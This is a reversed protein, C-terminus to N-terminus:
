IKIAKLTPAAEQFSFVLRKFPIKFFLFLLKEKRMAFICTSKTESIRTGQQLLAPPLPLLPPIRDM